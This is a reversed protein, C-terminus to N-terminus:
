QPLTKLFANVTEASEPSLDLVIAAEERAKEYEGLTKYIFALSAHFQFDKERYYVLGNYITALTRYYDLNNPDEEILKTYASLLYNLPVYSDSDIGKNEAIGIYKKAESENKTYINVLGKYWYCMAYDPNLEICKDVKEIATKYDGINMYTKSWEAHTQYRGPSLRVANQFYYDAKDRLSKDDTLDILNNELFGLFIWTRTFTPEIKLSEEGAKLAKNILGKKEQNTAVTNPLCSTIANVYEQRLYSDIFSHIPLENELLAIRQKCDRDQSPTNAFYDEHNIKANVALPVINYQWIFTIAIVAAAFILFKKPLSLRQVYTNKKTEEPTENKAVGLAFGIILYSVIFTSTNDFNFLKDVFLALIVAQISHILWYSEQRKLKQLLIFTAIWFALYFALAPLGLTIGIELLFNHARDWWSASDQVKLNYYKDFGISFNEPGWGLIPKEKLAQWSIQWASFRVDGIANKINLRSIVPGITSNQSIKQPLSFVNNATLLIFVALAGAIIGSIIKIYNLKRSKERRFFLFWVIGAGLGLYAARSLGTLLVLLFILASIVYFIKELLRRESICYALAIFFLFLSYIALADPNGMTSGPRTYQVLVGSLLKLQQAIAIFSVFLGGILFGTWIKKWDRKEVAIYAFIALISYLILNLSGDGRAPSGWFSFHPESSFITSLILLALFGMYSFLFLRPISKIKQAIAEGFKKQYCFQVVFFFLLISFTVKFLIAKAWDPPFLLPPFSLVPMLAILFFGALYIWRFLNKNSFVANIQM